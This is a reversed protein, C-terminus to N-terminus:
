MEVDVFNDDCDILKEAWRRAVDATEVTRCKVIDTSSLVLMSGEESSV